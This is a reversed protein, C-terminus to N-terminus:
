QLHYANICEVNYRLFNPMQPVPPLDGYLNRIMQQTVQGYQAQLFQINNVLHTDRYQLYDVYAKMNNCWQFLQQTQERTWYLSNHNKKLFTWFMQTWMKQTFSLVFSFDEPGLTDLEHQLVKLFMNNLQSKYKQYLKRQSFQTNTNRAPIPHTFTATSM